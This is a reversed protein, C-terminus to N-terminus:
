FNWAQDLKTQSQLALYTLHQGLVNTLMRSIYLIRLQYILPTLLDNYYFDKCTNDYHGLLLNLLLLYTFMFIYGPNFGVM